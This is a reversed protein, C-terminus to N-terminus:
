LLGFLSFIAVNWILGPVARSNGAEGQKHKSPDEPLAQIRGAGDTELTFSGAEQSVGRQSEQCHEEWCGRSNPRICDIHLTM